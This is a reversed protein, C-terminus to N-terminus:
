TTVLELHGFDWGWKIGGTLQIGRAAAFGVIYAACSRMDNENWSIGDPYAVIDVANGFQHRSRQHIGDKFTVVKSRDITNGDVDRGKQWLARQEEVTRLGSIVAFDLWVPAAELALRIAWALDNNVTALCDASRKGVKAM